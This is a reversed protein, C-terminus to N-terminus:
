ASRSLLRRAIGHLPTPYTRFRRYTRTTDIGDRVSFRPLLLRSPGISLPLHSRTPVTTLGLTLGCAVAASVVEPSVDGNPYAVIAPRVGAEAMLWEQCRRLQGEMGARDYNPLIAHDHTHNGLHVWPSAAFVRLEASTMPRDADGAPDFARAGFRERVHAEIAAAPLRKLANQEAQIAALPTRARARARFLADWWFAEGTAVHKTSIFFVAPVRYRELLPMVSLNNFYGDDFTLLVFRGGLELGSAVENPTVFTYGAEQFHTICGELGRL